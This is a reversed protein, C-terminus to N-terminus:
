TGILERIKEVNAAGLEYGKDYALRMQKQKVKYQNMDGLDPELWLDIKNARLEKKMRTVRTDMVDICRLLTEVVNTTAKKVTLDGLVDVAVIVEAGMRSLQETPVRELVGGDVLRRGGIKASTFAGPISSSAVAAELASGEDLVVLEGADIDTAVCAFPISLQSFEKDGVVEAILKKAKNLRFLGDAKLSGSLAAIGSLRLACVKERMVDAPVGACYAYGIIAGMSCGTVFDPAIQAEELAKIFGIHAVGRSGGSGLALGLKKRM